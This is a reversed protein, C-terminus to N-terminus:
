SEEKAAARARDREDEDPFVSKILAASLKM